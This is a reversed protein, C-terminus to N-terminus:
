LLHWYTNATPLEGERNDVYSKYFSTVQVFMPKLEKVAKEHNNSTDMYDFVIGNMKEQLAVIDLHDGIIQIGM